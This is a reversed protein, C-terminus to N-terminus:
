KSLKKVKLVKGEFLHQGVRFKFLDGSRTESEVLLGNEKLVDEMTERIIERIDNPSINTNTQQTQQQQPKQQQNTNGKPTINMLRSAKEILDNSLQPNSSVGMTPQQIPHEIMLRKIEDPLKSKAIRDELPLNSNVQTTPQSYEQMYEQPINYTSQPPQFNELVPSKYNQNPSNYSQNNFDQQQGRDMSNHKEMIKKSIKLKEFLEQESNM